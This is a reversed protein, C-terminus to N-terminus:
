IGAVYPAIEMTTGGTLFLLGIAIYGGGAKGLRGGIVDVAAKGKVKLEQDLPIYAMEKTPDFLSYKTAKSFVNQAAGGIVLMILSIVASTFLVFRTLMRKFPLIRFITSLRTIRSSEAMFAQSDNPNTFQQKHQKKLNIELLTITIYYTIMLIAIFTM